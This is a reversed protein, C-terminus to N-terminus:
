SWRTGAGAALPLLFGGGRGRPLIAGPVVVLKVRPRPTVGSLPYGAGAPGVQPVPGCPVRTVAAPMARFSHLKTSRRPRLFGHSLASQSGPPQAASLGNRRHHSARRQPIQPPAAGAAFPRRGAEHRAPARRTPLLRRFLRARGSQGKDLSLDGVLQKLQRNEERLQRLERLEPVGLGGFKKKWRFFSAQSVGLKRCIDGVPTGAESQRLAMAIQEASFRSKRVQSDEKGIPIRLGGWCSIGLTAATWSEPDGAEPQGGGGRPVQSSSRM